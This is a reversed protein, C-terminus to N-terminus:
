DAEAAADNSPRQGILVTDDFTVRFIRMSHSGDRAPYGEIVVATGVEISTETWGRRRLINPSNTEARWTTDLGDPGTVAVTVIGHPNRFRFDEVVGSIEVIRDPVFHVAFSHHARADRSPGASVFIAVLVAGSLRAKM